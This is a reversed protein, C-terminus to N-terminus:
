IISGADLTQIHGRPQVEMALGVFKFGKGYVIATELSSDLVLVGSSPNTGPASNGMNCADGAGSLIEGITGGKRRVSAYVTDIGSGAFGTVPVIQGITITQGAPFTATLQVEVTYSGEAAAAVFTAATLTYGYVTGGSTIQLSQSGSLLSKVPAGTTTLKVLIHGAVPASYSTEEIRLRLSQIRQCNEPRHTVQEPAAVMNISVPDNGSDAFQPYVTMTLGHASLYEGLIQIKCIDGMGQLGFPQLEGSEVLQLIPVYTGDALTDVIWAEEQYLQSGDSLALRPLGQVLAMGSVYLDFGTLDWHYVQGFPYAETKHKYDIVIIQGDATAFWVQRNAEFQMAATILTQETNFWGPACEVVRQDTTVCMLRKTAASQFYCGDGGNVISKPNTCGDKTALTQIIYGGHGMGDPGPGSIIGIADQKFAAFYSWDIAAGGTTGGTGELWEIRLTNNWQIGIGDAFEQSPYLSVNNGGIARNRWVSVWRMAPPPDNPLANGTTYIAEVTAPDAGLGADALAVSMQIMTDNVMYFSQPCVDLYDVTPDNPMVRFLELDVAGVYIEIQATTGPLLHRLTPIRIWQGSANLNEETTLLADKTITPASRWLRGDADTLRYVVAVTLDGLALSSIPNTIDLHAQGMGM